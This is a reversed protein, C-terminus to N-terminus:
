YVKPPKNRGGVLERHAELYVHEKETNEELNGYEIDIGGTHFADPYRSLKEDFNMYGMGGANSRYKFKQSTRQSDYEKKIFNVLEGQESTYEQPNLADSEPDMMYNYVDRVLSTKDIGINKKLEKCDKPFEERLVDELGLHVIIGNNGM